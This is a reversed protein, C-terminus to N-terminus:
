SKLAAAAHEAALILESSEPIQQVLLIFLLDMVLLQADRSTIASSRAKEEDAVIYLQIDALSALRNPQLGTLSILTAGSTGASEAIRITELSSGSYSLAMM